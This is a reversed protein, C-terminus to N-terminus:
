LCEALLEGVSLCLGGYEKTVTVLDADNSVLVHGEKISTEAILADHLNNPKSQNMTDLRAKLATCLNDEASYRAHGYKSVGYVASTTPVVREGGLRAKSLRSVGLVFSRTPETGAVVHDFVALLAARREPNNTNNIEDRQIHTAYAEVRGGFVHLPIAGDLIRNFVNTDFM